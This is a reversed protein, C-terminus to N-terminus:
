NIKLLVPRGTNRDAGAVGKVLTGKKQAKFIARFADASPDLNAM